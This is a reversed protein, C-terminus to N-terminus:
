VMLLRWGPVGSYDRLPLSVMMNAVRMASVTVSSGVVPVHLSGSEIVASIILTVALLKEQRSSHFHLHHRSLSRHGLMLLM